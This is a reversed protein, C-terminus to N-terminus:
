KHWLWKIADILDPHKEALAKQRHAIFLPVFYKELLADKMKEAETQDEPIESKITELTQLLLAPNARYTTIADMIDQSQQENPKEFDYVAQEAVDNTEEIKDIDVPAPQPETEEAVVTNVIEAIDPFTERIAKQLRRVCVKKVMTSTFDRWPCSDTNIVPNGQDDKVIIKKNRGNEYVWKGKYIGAEGANSAAIIENTPVYDFFDLMDAPTKGISIRIGFKEINGNVLNDINVTPTSDGAQNYIIIRRGNSIQEEFHGNGGAPIAVCMDQYIYGKRRLIRPLANVNITISPMGGRFVVTLMDCDKIPDIEAATCKALETCAAFMAKKQKDLTQLKAANSVFGDMLKRVLWDSTRLRVGTELSLEKILNDTTIAGNTM